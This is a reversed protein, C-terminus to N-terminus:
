KLKLREPWSDESYMRMIFNDCDELTRIGMWGLFLEANKFLTNYVDSPHMKICPHDGELHCDCNGQPYSCYICCTCNDYNLFCYQCNSSM